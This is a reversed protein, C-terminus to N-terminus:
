FENVFTKIQEKEILLIFNHEKKAESWKAENIAQKELNAGRENYTWESKIEIILDLDAVYFDSKYLHTKGDIKYYFSLGQSIRHLQNKDKILDLFYKEFSSMYVLDTGPYKITKIHRSNMIRNMIDPDQAPRKVGYKELNTQSIKNQIEDIKFNHDVGHNKIMSSKWQTKGKENQMATKTGFKQICTEYMKDRLLGASFNNEVGYKKLMTEKYKSQTSESSASCSRSCFRSIDKHYNRIIKNKCMECLPYDILGHASLTLKCSFNTGQVNNNVWEYYLPNRKKFEREKFKIKGHLWPQLFLMIEQLTIMKIKYIQDYICFIHTEM